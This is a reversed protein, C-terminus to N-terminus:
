NSKKIREKGWTQTREKGNKQEGRYTLITFEISGVEKQLYARAKEKEERLGCFGTFDGTTSIM